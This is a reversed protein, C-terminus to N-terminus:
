WAHRVMFGSLKNSTFGGADLENDFMASYGLLIWLVLLQM